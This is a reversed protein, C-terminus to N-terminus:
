TKDIIIKRNTRREIRPIRITLIGQQMSAQIQSCDVEEPLVIERAFPGWYCEQYFYNKEAEEALKERRGKIILMDKEISIDLDESKVGAIASQVVFEKDTQYVDVTLQGEPQLWKKEIMTEKEVPREKEARVKIKEKKTKKKKLPNEAPLEGVEMGKKLKELFTNM